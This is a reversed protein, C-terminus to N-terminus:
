RRRKTLPQEDEEESQIQDEPGQEGGEVSTREDDIFSDLTEAGISGEEAQRGSSGSTHTRVEDAEEDIMDGLIDSDYEDTDTSSEDESDAGSIKKSRYGDALGNRADNSAVADHNASSAARIRRAPSEYNAEDSNSPSPARDLQDEVESAFSLEEEDVLIADGHDETVAEATGQRKRELSTNQYKMRMQMDLLELKGKLRLLLSLNRTREVIVTRLEKLKPLVDPRSALYAGHTVITWQIWQILVAARRPRKHLLAVLKEVLLPTLRPDLRTLTNQLSDRDGPQKLPRSLVLNLFTSDNARLSQSLLNVFSINTNSGSLMMGLHLARNAEAVPQVTIEAHESPPLLLAGFSQDRSTSSEQLAPSTLDTTPSEHRARATTHSGAVGNENPSRDPEGYGISSSSDELQSHASPEDEAGFEMKGNGLSDTTRPSSISINIAERTLKSRLRDKRAHRVPSPARKKVTSVNFARSLDKNQAPM